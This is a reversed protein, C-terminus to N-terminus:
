GAITRGIWPSADDVLENHHLSCHLMYPRARITRISLCGSLWERISYDYNYYMKLYVDVEDLPIKIATM